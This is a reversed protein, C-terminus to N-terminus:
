VGDDMEYPEAIPREDDFALGILGDDEQGAPLSDVVGMARKMGVALIQFADSNSVLLGNALYCRQPVISLDFVLPSEQQVDIRQIGVIRNATNRERLIHLLLRAVASKASALSGTVIQGLQNAMNNM